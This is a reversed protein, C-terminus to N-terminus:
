DSSSQFINGIKQPKRSASLLPPIAYYSRSDDTRWFWLSGDAALSIVGGFQETIAIWDSHKSLRTASASKPNTIPDDNFTWKWLSGDAKLAVVSEARGAVDIWNSDNGLQIGVEEARFRRTDFNGGVVLVGDDQIGVLIRGAQPWAVTSSNLRDLYEARYLTIEENLKIRKADLSTLSSFWAQGDGDRFVTRWDHRSVSWKLETEVRQPEFTRLGPWEKSRNTSEKGWSWLTGDNKTLFAKRNNLSVENWDNDNGVQVLQQHIFKDTGFESPKRPEESVWLSGDAKIGVDDFYSSAVSAWNSGSWFSSSTSSPNWNDFFIGSFDPKSFTMWTSLVRGGALQITLGRNPAQIQNVGSKELRAVGHTAPELPMFLEWSRHYIAITSGVVFALSAVVVAANRRGVRWNIWVQKFNQEMLVFLTVTMVPVGILYNLWGRWLPYQFFKEADDAGKLMMFTLGIGLVAPAFSQLTNRSLSSAYFSVSFIVAVVGLPVLFPLLQGMFLLGNSLSQVFPDNPFQQLLEGAAKMEFTPLIRKGELLLPVLFGLLGSLVMASSFKIWFQTRRRVPFCLQAELTGLKREESVAACGIVLPMVFWLVWFGNLVFGIASSDNFDAFKRTAIVALHLLLLVGAIVLQSQHLQLEKFLLVTRPRRGRLKVTISVKDGSRFKPLAVIGGTQPVDQAQLFLRRALFLGSIGYIAFTGFLGVNTIYESYNRLSFGVLMALAFPILFTFWFAATTQRFLLTTWLGGSFLALTFMGTATWLDRSPKEGLMTPNFQNCSFCWAFWVVLVAGALLLLKTWWIRSRSIPQALLISFTGSNIEGFSRLITLALTLPCIFFPFVLISEIFTFNSSLNKPVFWISLILLMSIAWTPLLIRIENKLFANM